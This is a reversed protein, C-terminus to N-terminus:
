SPPVGSELRDAKSMTDSKHAGTEEFSRPNQPLKSGQERAAFLLQQARIYEPDMTVDLPVRFLTSLSVIQEYSLDGQHESVGQAIEQRLDAVFEPDIKEAADLAEPILEGKQAQELISTPDLAAQTVREWIDLEVDGVPSIFEGNITPIPKAPAQDYAYRMGAVAQQTAQDVIGPMFEEFLGIEKELAAKAKIPDQASAFLEKVSARYAEQKIDGDPEDAIHTVAQTVGRAPAKIEGSLLGEVARAIRGENQRLMREMVARAYISAGPNLKSMVYQGAIAGPLGGILYGAAVRAGIGSGLPSTQRLADAQNKRLNYYVAENVSQEGGSAANRAAQLEAIEQPSLDFHKLQTDILEQTERLHEKYKGIGPHNVDIVDGIVRRVSDPTAEKANVWANNPHVRGADQFWDKYFSDQRALRKAFLANTERQAEAARTGWYAPNELFQRIDEYSNRAAQAVDDAAGLHEGPKAIDGLIKKARDLEIFAGVKDGEDIKGRAGQVLEEMRKTKAAQDGLYGKGEFGLMQAREEVQKLVNETEARWAPRASEEEVLRTWMPRKGTRSMVTVFEPTGLAKYIEGDGAALGDEVAQRINMGRGFGLESALKRGLASKSKIQQEVAEAIEQHLATKAALNGENRVRDMLAVLEAGDSEGSMLKEVIERKQSGSWGSSFMDDVKLIENLHGALRAEAQGRLSEADLIEARLTQGAPGPDKLIAQINPDRLSQARANSAHFQDLLGPAAVGHERMAINAMDEESIGPAWARGRALGGRLLARKGLSAAGAELVGVGGGLILAPLMAGLGYSGLLRTYNAPRNELHARRAEDLAMYGASEVGVGAVRGLISRAVGPTGRRAAATVLEGAESLIGPATALRAGKFAGTFPLLTGAVEGATTLGPAGRETYGLGRIAQAGEAENPNLLMEPIGGLIGREAGLALPAVTGATEESARQQFFPLAEEHSVPQYGRATLLEAADAEPHAELAGTQPNRIVYLGTGGEIATAPAPGSM